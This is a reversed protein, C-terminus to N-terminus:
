FNQLSKKITRLYSYTQNVFRKDSCGVPFAWVLCYRGTQFPILFILIEIFEIYVGSQWGGREFCLRVFIKVACFAVIYYNLLSM